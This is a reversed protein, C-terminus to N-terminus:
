SRPPASSIRQITLEEADLIRTLIEKRAPGSTFELRRLGFPDIEHRILRLYEVSPMPTVALPDALLVDGGTQQQIQEISVGPHISVLRFLDAGTDLEFIGLNTLLRVHGPQLGARRREEDSRLGRSATCFRVSDPFREPSHRTLYLVFNKHLNAM